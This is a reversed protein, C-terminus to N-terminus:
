EGQDLENLQSHLATCQIKRRTCGTSNAILLIGGGGTDRTHWLTYVMHDGRKVASRFRFQGCVTGFADSVHICVSLEDIAMYMLFLHLRM